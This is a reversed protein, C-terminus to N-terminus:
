TDPPTSSSGSRSPATCRIRRRGSTIWTAGTMSAWAMAMPGLWIVPAMTRPRLGPSRAEVLITEPLM